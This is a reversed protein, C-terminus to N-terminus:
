ALGRRRVIWQSQVPRMHQNFVGMKEPASYKWSCMPEAMCIVAGTLTAWRSADCAFPFDASTGFFRPTALNSSALGAERFRIPLTDSHLYGQEM